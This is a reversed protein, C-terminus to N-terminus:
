MYDGIRNETNIKVNGERLDILSRIELYEFDCYLSIIAVVLKVNRIDFNGHTSYDNVFLVNVLLKFTYINCM